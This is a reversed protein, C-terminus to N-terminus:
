HKELEQRAQAAAEPHAAKVADAIRRVALEAEARVGPNALMEVALKLADPDAAGALAGLVLKRDEDSKAGALLQRYLAVLAADPHANEEGALRVLGRLALVRHAENDTQSYLAALTAWAALDPWEALARTAAERVNPETGTMATKLAALAAADGCTPLLQVLSCRAEVTSAQDLAARVIASRRAPNGVRSLVQAVATEAEARADAARLAALAQVAAAAQEAGALRGLGQFATKATTTDTSATEALLVPVALNSGRRALVTLLPTKPGAMRNRLQAILAQDVSEGGNLVTLAQEIASTEEGSQATALARTLVPVLGADGHEGLAGIAALRVSADAAQLQAQVAAQAVPDHREALSEVLLAQETPALKPLEAAFKQSADLGRIGSIAAIAASKLATDTGELVSVIRREGGDRDLRLLALFAGRRVNEPWGTALLETYIVTARRPEGKAALREALRISGDAVALRLAPSEDRRLAALTKAAGPTAIKGLAVIASEAVMPDTDRALKNLQAVAKTDGREGLTHIVHALALGKTTGLAARLAALAEPSPNNALALCAIGATAEDKLLNALAPVSASTGIIALQQCAFRKAEFTSDGTLVSVFDAEIGKRQAANNVSEAVLQEYRRLPTADAGSAYHRLSELTASASDATAAFPAVIVALSLLTSLSNLKM